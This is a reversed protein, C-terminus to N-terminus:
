EFVAMMERTTLGERFRRLEHYTMVLVCYSYAGIAGRLLLDGILGVHRGGGVILVSVVVERVGAAGLGLLLFLGYLRWRYGDTLEASRRMSAIPGAREIICVPYAVVWRMAWMNGPIVALILGGAIALVTLLATGLFPLFRGAALVLVEGFSRQEATLHNFVALNAIAYGIVGFVVTACFVLSLAAFHGSAAGGIGAMRQPDIIRHQYLVWPLAVMLGAGYLVPFNAVLVEWARRFADAILFEEAASDSM